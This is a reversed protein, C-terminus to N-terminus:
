RGARRLVVVLTAVVLFALPMVPSTGLVVINTATAGVMLAVIGLAALQALRGVLLGVAGAVELTGVFIRLWQGAGIDAFMAVMQPDSTLKLLGAMALQGALLIQAIWVVVTRARRPRVAPNTGATPTTTTAM